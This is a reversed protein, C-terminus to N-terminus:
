RALDQQLDGQLKAEVDSVKRQWSTSAGCQQESPVPQLSFSTPNAQYHPLGGIQQNDRTTDRQEETQETREDELGDLLDDFAVRFSETNVYANVTWLVAEQRRYM